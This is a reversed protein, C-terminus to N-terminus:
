RNWTRFGPARCKLTPFSFFLRYFLGGSSQSSDWNATAKMLMEPSSKLTSERDNRATRKWMNTMATLHLRGNKSSHKKRVKLLNVHVKQEPMGGFFGKVDECVGTMVQSLYVQNSPKNSFQEAVSTLALCAPWEGKSQTIMFTKVFKSRNGVVKRRKKMTRSTHEFCNKKKLDRLRYFLTLNVFTIFKFEQMTKMPSSCRTQMSFFRLMKPLKTKSTFFWAHDVM